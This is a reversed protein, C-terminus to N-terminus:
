ANATKKIEYVKITKGSVDLEACFSASLPDSAGNIFNETAIIEAHLEPAIMALECANGITEVVGHKQRDIGIAPHLHPFIKIQKKMEQELQHIRQLIFQAAELVESDETDPFFMLIRSDQHLRAAPFRKSLEKSTEQWGKLLQFVNYEPQGACAQKLDSIEAAMVLFKAKPPLDSAKNFWDLLDRGELTSTRSRQKKKEHRRHLIRHLTVGNATAIYDLWQNWHAFLPFSLAVMFLGLGALILVSRLLSSGIYILFLSIGFGFLTDLAITTFISLHHIRKNNLLTNVSNALLYVGPMQQQHESFKIPANWLDRSKEFTSGIMVIKDTLYGLDEPSSTLATKAYVRDFNHSFNIREEEDIDFQIEQERDFCGKTSISVTEDKSGIAPKKACLYMVTAPFSLHPQGNLHIVPRMARVMRDEGELNVYGFAFRDKANPFKRIKDMFAQHRQPIQIIKEGNRDQMHLLYLLAIRTRTNRSVEDLAALLIEQDPAQESLDIDIALVSPNTAAVKQILKALFARSLPRRLEVPISQFAIEDIDIIFIQTSTERSRLQMFKDIALNEQGRFIHLYRAGLNFVIAIAFSVLLAHILYRRERVIRNPIRM